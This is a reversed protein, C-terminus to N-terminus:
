LLIQLAQPLGHFLFNSIYLWLSKSEKTEVDYNHFEFFPWSLYLQTLFFFLYKEEIQYLFVPPLYWATLRLFKLFSM